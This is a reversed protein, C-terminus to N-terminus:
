GPGFFFLIINSYNRGENRGEELQEMEERLCFLLGYAWSLLFLLLSCLLVATAGIRRGEERKAGEEGL